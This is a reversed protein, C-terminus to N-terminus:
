EEEVKQHTRYIRVYRRQDPGDNNGTIFEQYAEQTNPNITTSRVNEIRVVIPYDYTPLDRPITWKTSITEMVPYPAVTVPLSAIKVLSGTFEADFGELGLRGDDDDTLDWPTSEYYLTVDGSAAVDGLNRVTLTIDIERGVLPATDSFVIDMPNVTLDPQRTRFREGTVIMNEPIPGQEEGFTKAYDRLAQWAVVGSDLYPLDENGQLTIPRSMWRGDSREGTIVFNLIYALNSGISHVMALRYSRETDMPEGGIKISGPVLRHFPEGSPDIQYSFNSFQMVELNFEKSAGAYVTDLVEISYVLELVYELISIDERRSEEIGLASLDFTGPQFLLVVLPEDNLGNEDLNHLPVIDYAGNETLTGATLDARYISPVVMAVDCLVDEEQLKWLFADALYQGLGSPARSRHSLDISFDALPTDYVDGYQEILIGNLQDVWESVEEDEQITQDVQILHSHTVTAENQTTDIELLNATVFEGAERGQIVVTESGAPNDILIPHNLQIHSHASLLLDIARGSNAGIGYRAIFEDKGAPINVRDGFGLGAHSAVITVQAGQEDLSDLGDAIYSSGTPDPDFFTLGESYDRPAGIIRYFFPDGAVQTYISADTTVGLLGVKLGDLDLVLNQNYRIDAENHSFDTEFSSVYSQYDEKLTSPDVNGWMFYMPHGKDGDQFRSEATAIQSDLMPIGFHYDHNGVQVVDVGIADYIEYLRSIAGSVNHFLTNEFDDGSNVILTSIGKQANNDRITRFITALRALGGLSLRDREHPLMRMHFDNISLVCLSHHQEDIPHFSFIQFRIPAALSLEHRAEILALGSSNGLQVTTQAIGTEDTRISYPTIDAQEVSSQGEGDLLSFTILQGAVPQADDDVVNLSLTLSEGHFASQFQNQVAQLQLDVASATDDDNDSCSWSFFLLALCCLTAFRKM